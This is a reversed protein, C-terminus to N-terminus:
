CVVESIIPEVNNLMSRYFILKKLALNTLIRNRSIETAWRGYSIEKGVNFSSSVFLLLCSFFASPM